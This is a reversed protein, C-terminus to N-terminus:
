ESGNENSGGYYKILVNFASVNKQWQAIDDSHKYGENNLFYENNALERKMYALFATDMLEYIPSEDEFEFSIKM